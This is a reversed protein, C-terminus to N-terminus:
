LERLNYMARRSALETGLETVVIRDHDDILQRFIEKLEAASYTSRLAWQSELVQRAGLTRLRQHFSGYDGNGLLDCTILYLKM